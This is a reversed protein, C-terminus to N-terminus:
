EGKDDADARLCGQLVCCAGHHREPGRNGPHLYALVQAGAVALM